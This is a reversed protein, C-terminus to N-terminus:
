GVGSANRKSTCTCIGPLLLNRALLGLGAFSMFSVPAVVLNAESFHTNALPNVMLGLCALQLTCTALLSVMDTDPVTSRSTMTCPNLCTILNRTMGMASSMSRMM